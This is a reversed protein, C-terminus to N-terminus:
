AAARALALMAILDDHVGARDKRWRDDSVRLIRQGHRQLWADKLRDREFDAAAIHYARGDLELVLRQEPWHCDLEWPGLRVNRQPEPFEPHQALWRDFSRELGSRRRPMPVYAQLARRLTGVGSRRQHRALTQAVATLDLLGLRATEDILSRLEQSSARPALECLMRPVASVRLGRRRVVESRHPRESVRLIALGAHRPTSAAVVGVEIRALSIADLGWVAAATRGALWAGPGLALLAARLHADDSLRNRGDAYVGRHLRRLDGHRVFGRVEEKTFGLEWLARLTIVGGNARLAKTMARDREVRRQPL